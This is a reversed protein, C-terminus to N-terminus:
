AAVFEDSDLKRIKPKLALDLIENLGILPRKEIGAM